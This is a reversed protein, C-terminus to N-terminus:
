CRAQLRERWQLRRAQLPLTSSCGKSALGLIPPLRRQQSSRPWRLPRSQTLARTDHHRLRTSSCRDLRRRVTNTAADVTWHRRGTGVGTAHNPASGRGQGGQPALSAGFWGPAGTTAAAKAADVNITTTTTTAAAGQGLIYLHLTMVTALGASVMWWGTTGSSTKQRWEVM